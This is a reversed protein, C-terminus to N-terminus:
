FKLNKFLDGLNTTLEESKPLDYEEEEIEAAAAENLAKMSLSIKGDKIGIVKVKVTDGTQVVAAPTKIRKECIQSIHVLGSLGNGLNIFAGYPQISEVTGETVLGIEVNSIKKSREEDAKEKLIEKASLVLKKNEPDVTIVRVELEKLLYENLDEVYTLALKSAPIFGRIGEVYAVVGSNVVGSIKVTINASTELLEKLKDWALIDNAAKKSLLLNGNGDDTRIVTASIEDGVAVDTKLSFSPDNSMDEARIIGEAYSKLDLIVETDTVGIITGTLVDGEEIKHFSAELESSYDEMTEIPAETITGTEQGATLAENLQESM